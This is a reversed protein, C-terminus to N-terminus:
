REYHFNSQGNAQATNPSNNALWGLSVMGALFSLTPSALLNNLMHMMSVQLSQWPKM